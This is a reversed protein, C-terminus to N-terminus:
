YIGSTTEEEQAQLLDCKQLTHNIKQLSNLEETKQSVYRIADTVIAGDTTLDMKYKNCDNILTLAQLRTKNDTEKSFISWGMKLVQNIGILCKQYEAPVVELIHHQLNERAQKRIFTLDKNVTPQTIHLVTSIESQTFGQSSLELVKNRRWEREIRNKNRISSL